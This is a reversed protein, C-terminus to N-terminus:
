QVYLFPTTLCMNPAGVLWHVLHLLGLSKSIATPEGSKKGKGPKRAAKQV